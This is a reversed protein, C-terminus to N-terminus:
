DFLENVSTVVFGKHEPYRRFLEQHAKEEDEAEIQIYRQDAWGDSLQKHSEGSHVLNRVDKNYLSFEFIRHISPM